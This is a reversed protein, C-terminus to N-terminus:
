RSPSISPSSFFPPYITTEQVKHHKLSQTFEATTMLKSVKCNEAAIKSITDFIQQQLPTAVCVPKRSKRLGTKIGEKM